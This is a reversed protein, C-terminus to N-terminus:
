TSLYRSKPIVQQWLSCTIVYSRLYFNTKCYQNTNVLSFQMMNWLLIVWSNIATLVEFRIWHTAQRADPVFHTRWPARDLAEEKLELIKDKEYRWATAAIKKKTKLERRDKM